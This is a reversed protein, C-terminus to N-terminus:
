LWSVSNTFEHIEWELIEESLHTLFDRFAAHSKKVLKMYNQLENNSM